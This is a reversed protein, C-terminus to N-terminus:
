PCGTLSTIWQDIVDTGSDDVVTTGIQPMQLMPDRTHMRLSLVSAGPNGPTIRLAGAVGLDGKEPMANCLNMEAFPTSFRADFGTFNSGPRHCMSCNSQLYSRARETLAADGTPSPYAPRRPPPASFLGIHELTDLQNGTVGNPYTFDTNLQSTEPGLAVGAPTTHCQLCQQRSPFHWVQMGNPGQVEADYGEVNSALLDADTQDDRWQYSYGWFDFEGARVLLRTEVLKEGFAFTKVFVTGVPFNWDGEDEYTGGMDVPACADPNRACDKVDITAGPPLAFYRTKAAADSWLPSSVSYPILTAAPRKPDSPDVCGTASLLMAAESQSAPALCTQGTPRAELGWTPASGGSGGSGGPADGAGGGTSAGGNGSGAGGQPASGSTGADGSTGGSANTGGSPAGGTQTGGDEAPSEGTCGLLLFALGLGIPAKFM